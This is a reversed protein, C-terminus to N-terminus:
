WLALPLVIVMFTILVAVLLDSLWQPLAARKIPEFATLDANQRYKDM